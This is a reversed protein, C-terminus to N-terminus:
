LMVYSASVCYVWTGDEHRSIARSTYLYNGRSWLISNSAEHIRSAAGLFNATEREFQAKRKELASRDMSTFIFFADEVSLSDEDSVICINTIAYDPKQETRNEYCNGGVEGGFSEYLDWFDHGAGDFGILFYEFNKRSAPTMQPSLKHELSHRLEDILVPRAPSDNTVVDPFSATMIVYVWNGDSHQYINFSTYGYTLPKLSTPHEFIGSWAQVLLVGDESFNKVGEEGFYKVAETEFQTRLKEINEKNPSVFLFVNSPKAPDSDRSCMRVLDCNSYSETSELYDSSESLMIEQGTLCLLHYAVNKRSAVRMDDSPLSRLKEFTEETIIYEESGNRTVTKAKEQQIVQEPLEAPTSACSILFAAALSISVIITKM